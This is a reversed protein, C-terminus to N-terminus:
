HYIGKLPALATLYLSRKKQSINVVGLVMCVYFGPLQYAVKNATWDHLFIFQFSDKEM